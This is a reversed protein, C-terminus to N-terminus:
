LSPLRPSGRTQIQCGSAELGFLALCRSAQRGTCSGNSMQSVVVVWEWSSSVLRVDSVARVISRRNRRRQLARITHVCDRGASDRKNNWPTRYRWGHSM